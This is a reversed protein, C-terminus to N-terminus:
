SSRGERFPCDPATCPGDVDRIELCVLCVEGPAPDLVTIGQLQQGCLGVNPFDCCAFHVLPSTARVAAAEAVPLEVASM